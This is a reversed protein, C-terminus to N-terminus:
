LLAELYKRTKEDDFSGLYSETTKINTHGLSQSIFALPAESQLLITAFSHRAAYTTVEATIGVAKAIRKIHINTVKTVNQVVKLQRDPTMDNSLFPFVYATGSRPTTGWRELIAMTEVNLVVKVKTQNGKRSRSTKQRIFTLTQEKLDIDKWRLTCIDAMNMGNSLYSFVWLDRGRQELTEPKCEYNIIKRVEEKSLAKKTNKGAPIVYRNKGFPYEDRSVVGAEMADNFVSRLHRCYIGVTTPTTGTSAKKPDQASKGHSLMWQEYLTLFENTVHKFQLPPTPAPEARRSRLPIVPLGLEKRDENTLSEIFRNLSKAVLGYNIGNSVRGQRKMDEAKFNLAAILDSADTAQEEKGYSDLLEKFRDFTFNAGLQAAINRAVHVVGLPKRDDYKDPRNWLASWLSLFEEDKIKGDPKDREANNKLREWTDSEIKFGTAYLRQKREFTLYLKISNDGRRKDHFLTVTATKM